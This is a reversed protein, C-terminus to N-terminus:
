KQGGRVGKAAAAGEVGKTSRTRARFRIARLAPTSGKQTSLPCGEESQTSSQSAGITLTRKSKIREEHTKTGDRAALHASARRSAPYASRLSGRAMSLCSFLGGAVPLAGVPTGLSSWVAPCFLSPSVCLPLCPRAQTGLVDTRRFSQADCPPSAYVGEGRKKKSDTPFQM